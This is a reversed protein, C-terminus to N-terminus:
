TETKHYELKKVMQQYIVVKLETTVIKGYGLCSKNDLQKTCHLYQKGVPNNISM